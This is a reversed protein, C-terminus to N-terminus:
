IEYLHSHAVRHNSPHQAKSPVKLLVTPARLRRAMEGAERTQPEKIVDEFDKTAVEDQTGDPIAKPVYLSTPPSHAPGYGGPAVSALVSIAPFLRCDMM